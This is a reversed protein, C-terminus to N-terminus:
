KVGVLRGNVISLYYYGYAFSFDGGLSGVWWLRGKPSKDADDSFLVRMKNRDNLAFAAEVYEKLLNMDGALIQWVPSKLVQEKTMDSQNSRDVTVGNGLASLTM